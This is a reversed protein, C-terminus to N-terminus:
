TGPPRTGGPVRELAGALGARSRVGLKPYIHGLHYEVTKVSVILESAIQRNTLGQAALRAVTLEQATMRSTAPDDREPRIGCASLERTCLELAPRAGLAHMERRAAVLADVALRRRGARRLAMGLSLRLSAREFPHAPRSMGELADLASTLTAVAARHEKAAALLAARSRAASSFPGPLDCVLPELEALAAEADATRDAQILAETYLPLWPQLAPQRLAAASRLAWLIELEACADHPRGEALALRATAVASWLTAAPDALGAAAARAREVHGRAAEFEGRLALPASAVSHAIAATWALGNGGALAVALEGHHAAEDWRGLRFEAESLYYLGMIAAHAPGRERTEGVVAALDRQARGIDDRWLRLIGRALLADEDARNLRGPVAPLHAVAQEAEQNRGSITLAIVHVTTALSQAAPDPPALRRARGSWEVAEDLRGQNIYLAALSAAIQSAVEAPQGTAGHWGQLLLREGEDRRGAFLAATGAVGSWRASRRGPEIAAVAAETGAADGVSIMLEAARVLLDDAAPGPTAVRYAARLAVVAQGLSGSRARATAWAELQGALEDDAGASAAARHRLATLDDDVLGAARAHLEARRGATLDQYVAAQQLPHGFRVTTAGPGPEVLLGAGAAATLAEFPQSIGALRGLLGLPAPSALTAAAEILAVADSPLSEMRRRVSERYPRPAPLQAPDATLASAPDLDELVSRVHLPLGGTHQVLAAAVAASVPRGIAHALESVEAANLGCLTIWANPPLDTMRRVSEPLAPTDPGAPRAAFLMLLGASGLRRCAFALADLSAPDAWHADDVALLLPSTGAMDNIADLVASGAAVADAGPALGPSDVGGSRLLQEVLGFPLDSDLVDGTLVVAAIEARDLLERVLATKGSGAEGEIVIVATRGAAAAALGDSLRAMEATRGVIM